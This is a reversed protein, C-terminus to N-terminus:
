AYVSNLPLSSFYTKYQWTGSVNEWHQIDFNAAGNEFYVTLLFDGQTRGGTVSSGTSAFGTATKTLEDQLFEFDIYANGSNSLRDAAFVFWVNGNADTTFHILANNMDTKNNATGLTWSM